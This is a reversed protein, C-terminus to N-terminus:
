PAPAVEVVVTATAAEGEIGTSDTITVAFDSPAPASGLFSCEALDITASFGDLAIFGLSLSEGADNDNKAFLTDPVKNTCKVAAGEGEFVGPASGYDILLQLAGLPMSSATLRLTVVFPDTSTPLTTTVPEITTTTTTGPEETTTTSPGGIGCQIRSVAIAPDPLVVTEITAAEIDIVDFDAAGPKGTGRWRCRVLDAPGDIGELTIFGLELTEEAAHENFATLTDDVLSECEVNEGSGEFEGGSESYDALFQLSGLTVDDQLRFTVDCDLVALTTTTTDAVTTTTTDPVTTPPSGCAAAHECNPDDCDELGNLDDDRGNDCDECTRPDDDGSVCVPPEEDCGASTCDCEAVAVGDFESLDASSFGCAFLASVPPITCDSITVRLTDGDDIEEVDIECGATDLLSDLVCDASQDDRRQLVADAAALDVEVVIEDCSGDGNAGFFLRISGGGGGGGCAALLSASVLAFAATRTARLWREM